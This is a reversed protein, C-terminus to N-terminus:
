DGKLYRKIISAPLIDPCCGCTGGVPNIDGILFKQGGDKEILTGPTSLGENRFDDFTKFYDIWKPISM